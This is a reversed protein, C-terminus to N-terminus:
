GMPDGPPTVFDGINAPLPPAPVRPSDIVRGPLLTPQGARAIKSSASDVVDPFIEKVCIEHLVEDHWQELPLEYGNEGGVWVKTPWLEAIKDITKDTEGKRLLDEISRKSMQAAEGAVQAGLQGSKTLLTNDGGVTMRDGRDNKVTLGRHNFYDHTDGAALSIFTSNLFDLYAQYNQERTRGSTARVGSGALRGEYTERERATQPDTQTDGLLRDMEATGADTPRKYMQRGAMGPQQKSGMNEMVDDSPM